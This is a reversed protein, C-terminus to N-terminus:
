REDGRTGLRDEIAELRDNLRREMDRMERNTPQRFRITLYVGCVALMVAAALFLYGADNIGIMSM